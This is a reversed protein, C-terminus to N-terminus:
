CAEVEVVVAARVEGPAEVVVGIREGPHCLAVALALAGRGGHCNGLRSSVDRLVRDLDDPTLGADALARALPDAGTMCSGVGQVTALPVRGAARADAERELVFFAAGEGPPPDLRDQLHLGVMDELTLYTGYGGALGIDCRGERLAYVAEGVALLGAVEGDCLNDNVGRFQLFLSAFALVNNSLGKILWLPNLVEIGDDAWRRLEFRGEDDYSRRLPEVFDGGEDVHLGAGVFAARRESDPLPGELALWAARAAAVGIRVPRTMVKLHKRQRREVLQRADFDPIEGGVPVPYWPEDVITIPHIGSRGAQWAARLEDLDRGLSCLPAVATIVIRDSV